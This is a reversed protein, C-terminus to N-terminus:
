FRWKHMKQFICKYLIQLRSVYLKGNKSKLFENYNQYVEKSKCVKAKSKFDLLLFNCKEM